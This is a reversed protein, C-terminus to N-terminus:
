AVLHLGGQRCLRLLRLDIKIALSVLIVAAILGLPIISWGLIEDGVPATASSSLGLHLSFDDAGVKWLGVRAPHFPKSLISLVLIGAALYALVTAFIVAATPIRRIARRFFSKWPRLRAGLENEGLVYPSPVFDAYGMALESPSGLRALTADASAETICGGDATSTELIHCRIEDVLDRTQEASVPRLRVAFENLYDEIKRQAIPSIIM